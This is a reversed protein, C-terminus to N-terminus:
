IAQSDAWEQHVIQHVDIEQVYKEDLNIVEVATDMADKNRDQKQKELDHRFLMWYSIIIQCEGAM